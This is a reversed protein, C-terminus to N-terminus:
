KGVESAFEGGIRMIGPCELTLKKEGMVVLSEWQGPAFIAIPQMDIIILQGDNGFKWTNIGEDFVEVRGSVLRVVYYKKM